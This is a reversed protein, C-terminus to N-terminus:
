RKVPRKKIELLRGEDDYRMSGLDYGQEHLFSLLQACVVDNVSAGRSDKHDDPLMKRNIPGRAARRTRTGEEGLCFWRAVEFPSYTEELTGISERFRQNKIKQEM